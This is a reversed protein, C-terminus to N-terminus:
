IISFRFNQPLRYGEGDFEHLALVQLTCEAAASHVCESSMSSTGSDTGDAIYIAGGYNTTNNIFQTKRYENIHSSVSREKSIYLKSNGEFYIGGGEKATNTILRIVGLSTLSSIPM